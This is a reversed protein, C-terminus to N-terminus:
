MDPMYPATRGAPSRTPLAAVPYARRTRRHRFRARYACGPTGVQCPVGVAAAHPRADVPNAHTPPATAAAPSDIGHAHIPACVVSFTKLPGSPIAANARNCIRNPPKVCPDRPSRCAARTVSATHPPSPHTTHLTHHRPTLRRVTAAAGRAAVHIPFFMVVLHLWFPAFACRNCM